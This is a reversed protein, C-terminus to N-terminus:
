WGEDEDLELRHHVRIVNVLQRALIPGIGALAELTEREFPEEASRFLCVGALTEDEHRCAFTAVESGDLNAMEGELWAGIAADDRLHVLAEEQRDIQPGVTEALQPLIVKAAESDFSYNVYGGTAYGESQGPLFIAVNTSGVQQVIYELTKHLLPELALENEIMAAFRSTLEVHKFQGALEHYASVLDNCLIDVQQTTEIRAANLKHCLRRLRRVRGALRDRERRRRMAREVARDVESLDLPKRLYDCAGARMAEVMEEFTPKGALVVSSVAPQRVSFWRALDLGGGDPLKMDILALDIVTQQALREGAELTGAQHVQRGPAAIADALVQRVAPEDDVVLVQLSRGAPKPKTARSDNFFDPANPRM